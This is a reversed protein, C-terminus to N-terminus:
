KKWLFSGPSDKPIHYRAQASWKVKNKSKNFGSRHVLKLDFMLVDGSNTPFSVHKYITDKINNIQIAPVKGGNPKLHMFKKIKKFKHSKSKIEVPGMEDDIKGLSVWLVVSNSNKITNYHIDQHWPLNSIKDFGPIQLRLRHNNVILSKNNSTLIKKILNTTKKDAFLGKLSPLLNMNENLYGSIKKNNKFKQCIIKDFHNLNKYNKKSINKLFYSMDNILNQFNKNNKFFGPLYVYGSKKLDKRAKLIIKNV